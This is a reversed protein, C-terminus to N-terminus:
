DSVRNQGRRPRASPRRRFSARVAIVDPGPPAGVPSPRRGRVPPGVTRSARSAAWSPGPLRQHPRFAVSKSPWRFEAARAADSLNSTGFGRRQRGPLGRLQAPLPVVFRNEDRLRGAKGASIGPPNEEERRGGENGRPREAVSKKAGRHGAGPPRAPGFAGGPHLPDGDDARADGPERRRAAQRRAGLDREEFGRITEAAVRVRDVDRETAPRVADVDAEDDEVFAGRRAKGGQEGLEADRRRRGLHRERRLDGGGADFPAAGARSADERLGAVQQAQREPVHEALHRAEITVGGGQCTRCGVDGVVIRDAVEQGRM